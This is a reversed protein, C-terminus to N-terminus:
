RGTAARIGRSCLTWGCPRCRCSRVLEEQSTRVRSLGHLASAKISAALHSGEDALLTYVHRETLNSLVVSLTLIVVLVTILGALPYISIHRRGANGARPASTTM